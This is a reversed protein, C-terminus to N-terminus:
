TTRLGQVSEHILNYRVRDYVSYLTCYRRWMSIIESQPFDAAAAKLPRGSTALQEESKQSSSMMHLFMGSVLTLVGTDLRKRTKRYLPGPNTSSVLVADAALDRCRCCCRRCCCCCCCLDVVVTPPTAFRQLDQVRHLPLRLLMLCVGLMTLWRVFYTRCGM